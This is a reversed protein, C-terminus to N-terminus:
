IDLKNNFYKSINRDISIKVFMEKFQDGTTMPKELFQHSSIREFSM